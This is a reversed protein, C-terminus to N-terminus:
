QPPRVLMPTNPTHIHHNIKSQTCQNQINKKTHVKNIGFVCKHNLGCVMLDHLLQSHCHPTCNNPQQPTENDDCEDDITRTSAKGAEM